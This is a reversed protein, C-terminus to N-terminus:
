PCTTDTQWDRFFRIREDHDPHSSIAIPLAASDDGGDDQEAQEQQRMREFFAVM